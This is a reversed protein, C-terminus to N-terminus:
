TCREGGLGCVIFLGSWAIAVGAAALTIYFRIKQRREKSRAEPSVSLQTDIQVLLQDLNENKRLLSTFPELKVDNAMGGFQHIEEIVVEQKEDDTSTYLAIKEDIVRSFLQPRNISRWPQQLGMLLAFPLSPQVETDTVAIWTTTPDGMVTLLVEPTTSDVEFCRRQLGPCRNLVLEAYRGYKTSEGSQYLIKENEAVCVYYIFSM